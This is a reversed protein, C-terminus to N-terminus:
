KNRNCKMFNLLSEIKASKTDLYIKKKKRRHINKNAPIELCNENIDYVNGLNM